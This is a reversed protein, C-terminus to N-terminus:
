KKKKIVFFVVVGGILLVAGGIIWPLYKKTPWSSPQNPQMAQPDGGGALAAIGSKIIGGAESSDVIGQEALAKKAEGKAALGAGKGQKLALTAEAKTMKATSKGVAKVCKRFQRPRLKNPDCGEFNDGCMGECGTCNNWDERLDYFPKVNDFVTGSFNVVQNMQKNKQDILMSRQLQMEARAVHTPNNTNLVRTVAKVSETLPYGMSLFLEQARKDVEFEDSSNLEIHAYEHLLIFLRHIPDIKKWERDNILIEGTRRNCRAPTKSNGLNPVHKIQINVM